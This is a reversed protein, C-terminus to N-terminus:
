DKKGFAHHLPRAGKGVSLEDSAKLASTLYAKAARIAEVLDLGKALYAAIASSLTCGTGHAATLKLRRASFLTEGDADFLLEDATEGELHGGKLLVALAGQELLAPALLRAEALDQPM